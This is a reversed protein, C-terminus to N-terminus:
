SIRNQVFLKDILDGLKGEKVYRGFSWKCTHDFHHGSTPYSMTVPNILFLLRREPTNYPSIEVDLSFGNEMLENLDGFMMHVIGDAEEACRGKVDLWSECEEHDNFSTIEHSQEYKRYIQNWLNIRGHTVRRCQLEGRVKNEEMLREIDMNNTRISYSFEELGILADAFFARVKEIACIPSPIRPITLADVIESVSGSSWPQPVFYYYFKKGESCESLHNKEQM